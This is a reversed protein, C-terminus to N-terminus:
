LVRSQHVWPHGRRTEWTRSAPHGIKKFAAVGEELPELGGGADRWLPKKYAFFKVPYQNRGDPSCMVVNVCVAEHSTTHGGHGTVTYKCPTGQLGMRELAAIELINHTSGTDPMANVKMVKGDKDLIHLVMQMPTIRKRTVTEGLAEFNFDPTDGPAVLEAVKVEGRPQEDGAEQECLLYHHKSSKCFRCEIERGGCSTRLHGSRLCRFCRGDKEAFRKKEKVGYKHVFTYCSHLWHAGKGCCNCEPPDFNKPRNIVAYNQPEVDSDSSNRRAGKCQCDESGSSVSDRGNGEKGKTCYLKGLVKTKDGKTKEQSGAYAALEAKKPHARMEAMLADLLYKLFSAGTEEAGCRKMEMTFVSKIHHPVLERLSVIISDGAGALKASKTMHSDVHRAVELLEAYPIRKGGYKAKVQSLVEM